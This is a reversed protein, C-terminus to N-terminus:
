AAPACLADSLHLPISTSVSSDFAASLDEEGRGAWQLMRKM